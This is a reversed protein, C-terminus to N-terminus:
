DSAERGSLYFNDIVRMTELRDEGTEVIGRRTPVSMQALASLVGYASREGRLVDWSDALTSVHSCIALMATPSVLTATLQSATRATTRRHIDGSAAADRLVEVVSEWHNRLNVAEDATTDISLGLHLSLDLLRQVLPATDGGREGVAELERYVLELADLSRPTESSYMTRAIDRAQRTAAVYELVLELVAETPSCKHAEAIDAAAGKFQTRESDRSFILTVRPKKNSGLPNLGM